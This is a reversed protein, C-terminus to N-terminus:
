DLFRMAVIRFAFVDRPMDGKLRERAICRSDKRTVPTIESFVYVVPEYLTLLYRSPRKDRPQKAYVAENGLELPLNYKNKEQLARINSPIYSHKSTRRFGKAVTMAVVRSRQLQESKM